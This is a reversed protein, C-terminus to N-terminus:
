KSFSFHQFKPSKSNVEKAPLMELGGGFTAIWVNQEADVLIDRIQNSSISNPNQPSNLYHVFSDNAYTYRNLGNRTAIWINKHKDEKLAFIHNGSITSKRKDASKIIQFKYGDFINLGDNTGIWIFGYSDQFITEIFNQSLGEETTFHQVKYKKDQAETYQFGLCVFCTVALLKLITSRLNLNRTEM